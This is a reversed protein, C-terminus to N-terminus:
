NEKVSVVIKGVHRGAEMYRHAAAMEAFPFIKDVTPLIRGSEV